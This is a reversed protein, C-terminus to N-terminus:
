QCRFGVCSGSACDETALCEAGPAGKACSGETPVIPTCIDSCCAHPNSTACGRAFQVCSPPQNCTGNRCKGAGDCTTDNPRNSCAGNQCEKCPNNQCTIGENTPKCKGKKCKKTGNKNKRCTGKDCKQCEDCTPKCKGSKAAETEALGLRGLAGSLLASLTLRRSAASGLAKAIADFRTDEM